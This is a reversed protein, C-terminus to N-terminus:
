LKIMKIMIKFLNKLIAKDVKNIIHKIEFLIYTNVSRVFENVNLKEM